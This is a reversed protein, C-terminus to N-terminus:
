RHSWGDPALGLPSPDWPVRLDAHLETSSRSRLLRPLSRRTPAATARSRLRCTSLGSNEGAQRMILSYALPWYPQTSESINAAYPKLENARASAVLDCSAVRRPLSPRTRRVADPM